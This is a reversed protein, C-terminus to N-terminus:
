VLLSNAQLGLETSATLQVYVWVDSATGNVTEAEGGRPYLGHMKGGSDNCEGVANKAIFYLLRSIKSGFM